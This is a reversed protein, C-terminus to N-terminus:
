PFANGSLLSQMAMMQLDQTNMRSVSPRSPYMAFILIHDETMKSHMGRLTAVLHDTQDEYHEMGRERRLWYPEDPRDGEYYRRTVGVNFINRLAPALEGDGDSRFNLELLLDKRPLGTEEMADNFAMMVDMSNKKLFTHFLANGSKMEKKMEKTQRVCSLKHAKWDAKQCERSCYFTTKCRSCSSFDTGLKNCNRCITKKGRGGGEVVGMGIGEVMTVLNRICTLIRQSTNRHGDKGNLINRIVDGCPQGKQLKKRLLISCNTLENYIRGKMNEGHEVNWTGPCTTCRIYQALLGSSELKRMAKEQSWEANGHHQQNTLFTTVIYCISEAVDDCPLNPAERVAIYGALTSFLEKKMVVKLFNQHKMAPALSNLMTSDIQEVVGNKHVKSREALLRTNFDVWSEVEEQAIDAIVDRSGVDLIAGFKELEVCVQTKTQLNMKNKITLGSLHQITKSFPPFNSQRLYADAGYNSNIDVDRGNVLTYMYKERSM